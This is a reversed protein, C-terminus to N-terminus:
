ALDSVVQPVAMLIDVARMTVTDVIGGAYGSIIGLASGVIGGVLVSAFGILLSDRSGHVVVSFAGILIATHADHGCAHMKGDVQSAFELKTEEQIPM